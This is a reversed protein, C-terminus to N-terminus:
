GGFIRRRLAAVNQFIRIGFVVAIATTLDVDLQNGIWVLALAVAANTLLAVLFIRDSFTRELYSRMGGLAADVAALVAVAVYHTLSPPVPGVVGRLLLAVLAGLLLGLLAIM